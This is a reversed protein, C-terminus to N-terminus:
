YAQQTSLGRRYALENAEKEPSLRKFKIADRRVTANKRGMVDRHEVRAFVM